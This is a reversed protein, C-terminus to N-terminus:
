KDGGKKINDRVNQIEEIYEKGTKLVGEVDGKKHKDIITTIARYSLWIINLVLLVIGLINYIDEVTLVVSFSTFLIDILTKGNKM